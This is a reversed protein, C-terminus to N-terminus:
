VHLWERSRKEKGRNNLFGSRAFKESSCTIIAHVSGHSNGVHVRIKEETIRQSEQILGDIRVIVDPAIARHAQVPRSDEQLSTHGERFKKQWEHVSTVSICREGYVAFLLCIERTGAGDAVLFRVVGRQEETNAEMELAPRACKVNREGGSCHLFLQTFRHTKM